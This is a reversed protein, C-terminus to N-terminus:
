PKPDLKKNLAALQLEMRKIERLIANKDMQMWNFLKVYSVANLLFFAGAGWLMMERMGQANFFQIGCYVAFAFLVPMVIFTMVTVWKMKGQFLGGVMQSLNQEELEDYFKAEEESLAEKILVDIDEHKKM